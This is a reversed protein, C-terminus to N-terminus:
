ADLHALALKLAEKTRAKNARNSNITIAEREEAALWEKVLLYTEAAILIGGFDAHAELRAAM